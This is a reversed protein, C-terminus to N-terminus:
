GGLGQPAALRIRVVAGSDNLLDVSGHLDHEAMMQVVSIGVSSRGGRLVEEPFGPGNDRFVMCIEHADRTVDVSIRLDM